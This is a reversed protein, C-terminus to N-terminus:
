RRREIVRASGRRRGAEGSARRVRGRRQPPSAGSRGWGTLAVILVDRGAFVQRLRRATEFGDMGPMGLDLFVVDPKFDAAADLAAPGDYVGRAEVGLTEFVLVLSDAVDQNDDVVLVRRKVKARRRRRDPERGRAPLRPGRGEDRDLVGSLAKPAFFQPVFLRRFGSVMGRINDRTFPSNAQLEGNRPM